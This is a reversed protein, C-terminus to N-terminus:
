ESAGPESRPRSVPYGLRPPIREHIEETGKFNYQRLVKFYAVVSNEWTLGDNM